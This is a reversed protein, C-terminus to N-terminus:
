EKEDKMEKISKLISLVGYSILMAVFTFMLVM